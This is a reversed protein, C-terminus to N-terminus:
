QNLTGRVWDGILWYRFDRGQSCEIGGIIGYAVAIVPLFSLCIAFPICAVGVLVASLIGTLAWTAGVIVGGGVWVILQMIFAQISQYAVYKSRDKFVLYIVLAAVTGLVGTVLNLLVSLHSLMAWTREDSPSLPPPVPPSPNYSPNAQNPSQSM